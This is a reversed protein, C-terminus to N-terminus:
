DRKLGCVDAMRRQGFMAGRVFANEFIGRILPMLKVLEAVSPNRRLFEAWAANSAESLAADSEGKSMANERMVVAYDDYLNHYDM